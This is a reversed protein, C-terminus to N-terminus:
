PFGAGVQPEVGLVSFINASVEITKVRVPDMGPDVLNVEPRWWGAADKFVPLARYDMFTVPSVPDRTLGKEPNTDWFKVLKDPEQYPLPRLVVSDVITYVLTAAGTGLGLVLVTILAFSPQMRFQRLAMRLAYMINLSRTRNPHSVISMDNALRVVHARADRRPERRLPALGSTKLIDVAHRRADADAVGRAIAASYADDLHAALEDITAPALDIGAARAHARILEHWDRPRPETAM